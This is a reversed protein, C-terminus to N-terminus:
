HLVPLTFFFTTGTGTQSDFGIAGDHKEVISRTINLGLGAGGLNRSDINEGRVFKEFLRDRIDVPVGAGEDSVCVKVRADEPVLSTRVCAGKPSFKAANSLLNAMVKLLRTEDGRIEFKRGPDEFKFSVRHEEAYGMNQDVARRILDTLDLREMKFLMADADLKEVDLIDDVLAALLDSNRWAIDLLQANQEPDANSVGGTLMRLAGIISTLPTRLEHSMTTILQSKLVSAADAEDRAKELELTREHVREELEDRAIRLDSALKILSAGQIELKRHADELEDIQSQLIHETEQMEGIREQLARLPMTRLIVFIAGALIIAFFGVWATAVVISWLSYVVHVMAVPKRDKLVAAIGEIFFQHPMHMKEGDALPPSSAIIEGDVSIMQSQLSDGPRYQLIDELKPVNFKWQDPHKTIFASLMDARMEANHEIRMGEYKYATAFFIAPIAIAVVLSVIAAMWTLVRRLRKLRQRYLDDKNQPAM